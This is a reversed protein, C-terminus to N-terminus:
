PELEARGERARPASLPSRRRYEPPVRLPNHDRISSGRAPLFRSGGRSHAREGIYISHKAQWGGLAPTQRRRGDWGDWGDRRAKTVGDSPVGTAAENGTKPGRRLFEACWARKDEIRHSKWARVLERAATRPDAKWPSRSVLFDPDDVGMKAALKALHDLERHPAPRVSDSRRRLPSAARDSPDCDTQTHNTTRTRPDPTPGAPTASAGEPEPAVQVLTYLNSTPSGDQRTRPQVRLAGIEVLEKIAREVTSESVGLLSGISRKSPFCSATERNAWKAALLAYLKVGIASAGTIVWLPVVAWPGTESSVGAM